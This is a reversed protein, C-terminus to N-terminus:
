LQGRDRFLEGGRQQHRERCKTVPPVAVRVHRGGSEGNSQEVLALTVSILVLFVRQKM